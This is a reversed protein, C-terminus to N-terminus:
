PAWSRSRSVPRPRRPRGPAGGGVPARRRPQPSAGRPGAPPVPARPAALPRGAGGGLRRPGPGSAPSAASCGSRPARRPGPHGLTAGFSLQFGVDLAWAPRVVLLALAALGLLNAAEGALDFARGALVASAMLAARVIPVDGGVLLAYFWVAASALVAELGPGVRLWRLAGVILGAVLAVQAGSLALVHYTGSARFAEATEEDLESRDGLVMALVLGREPGPLLIETLRERM